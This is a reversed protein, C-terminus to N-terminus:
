LLRDGFVRLVVILLDGCSHDSFAYWRVESWRSRCSVSGRGIFNVVVEM